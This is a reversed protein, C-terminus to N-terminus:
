RRKCQKICAERVQECQSRNKTRLYCAAYAELCQAACTEQADVARAPVLISVLVACFLLLAAAIMM